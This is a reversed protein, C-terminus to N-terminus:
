WWRLFLWFSICENEYISLKSGRREIFVSDNISDVDDVINEVIDSRREDGFNGIKLRMGVSEEKGDGVVSDIIGYISISMVDLSDDSIM